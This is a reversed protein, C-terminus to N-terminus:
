SSACAPSLFARLESQDTYYKLGKQYTKERQVQGFYNLCHPFSIEASENVAEM